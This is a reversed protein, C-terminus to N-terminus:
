CKLPPGTYFVGHWLLISFTQFSIMFYIRFFHWRTDILIWHVITNCSICQWLAILSMANPNPVSSPSAQPPSVFIRKEHEDDDHNPHQREIQTTPLFIFCPMVLFLTLHCCWFKYSSQSTSSTGQRLEFGLVDPNSLIQHSLANHLTCHTDRALLTADHMTCRSGIYVPTPCSRRRVQFCTPQHFQSCRLTCHAVHLTYRTGSVSIM